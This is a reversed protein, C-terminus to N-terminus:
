RLSQVVSCCRAFVVDPAAEALIMRLLEKQQYFTLVPQCTAYYTQLQRHVALTSDWDEREVDGRRRARDVMTRMSCEFVIVMNPARGVLREFEKAQKLEQPFGDILFGPSVPCCLMNDSILDLIFGTPMCLGRLMLERIKQGRKTGKQAEQRLLQGLGVHCFGYKIAMSKCQTGKGSGPGGMVFIILASKLLDKEPQSLRRGKRPLTSKVQGM